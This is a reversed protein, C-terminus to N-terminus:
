EMDSNTLCYKFWPVTCLLIDKSLKDDLGPAVVFYLCTIQFSFKTAQQLVTPNRTYFLIEPYKFWKWHWNESFSCELLISRIAQVAAVLSFQM